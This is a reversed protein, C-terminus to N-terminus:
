RNPLSIDVSQYDSIQPHHTTLHSATDQQQPLLYQQHQTQNRSITKAM